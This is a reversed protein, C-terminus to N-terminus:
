RALFWSVVQRPICLVTGCCCAVGCGGCDGSDAALAFDHRFRFLICQRYILLLGGANRRTTGFKPCARGFLANHLRRTGAAAHVASCQFVPRRLTARGGAFGPAAFCVSERRRRLRSIQACPAYPLPQPRPNWTHACRAPGSFGPSNARSPPPPFSRCRRPTRTALPRKMCRRKLFGRLNGRRMLNKRRRRLRPSPPPLNLHLLNLKFFGRLNAPSTVRALNRASGQYRHRWPQSSLPQSALPQSALPQRQQHRRHRHSHRRRHRPFM